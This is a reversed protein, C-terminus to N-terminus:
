ITKWTNFFVSLIIHYVKYYNKWKFYTLILLVLLLSVYLVSWSLLHRCVLQLLDCIAIDGFCLWQPHSHGGGETCEMWRCIEKVRSWVHGSDWNLGHDHDSRCSDGLHGGKNMKSRRGDVTCVATLTVSTFGLDSGMMAWCLIGGTDEWKNLAFNLDMNYRGSRREDWEGRAWQERAMGQRHQERFRCVHEWRLGKCRRDERRHGLGKGSLAMMELLEKSLHWPMLSDMGAYVVYAMKNM